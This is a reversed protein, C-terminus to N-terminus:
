LPSTKPLTWSHCHLVDSCHCCAWASILYPLETLNGATDEAVANIQNWEMNLENVEVSAQYPASTDTGLEILQSNVADWREFTVSSIGANDSVAVELAITGKTAPYYERDGDRIIGDPKVWSVTPPETDAASESEITFLQTVALECGEHNESFVLEYDGGPLEPLTFNGEWEGSDPVTLPSLTFQTPGTATFTVTGGPLWGAGQATVTDGTSVSSPSITATPEPCSSEGEQVHFPADAVWSEEFADAIVKQVGIDKAEPPVTFTTIFTGDDSVTAEGVNYWITNETYSGDAELNIALSLYVTEGPYWGSGQVTVEEGPAAEAPDVTITRQDESLATVMFPLHVDVGGMGPEADRIFVDYEGETADAPVTFSVQINGNDDATTQALTIDWRVDITDGPPWGSGTVTVETGPPGETPDLTATPEAEPPPTEEQGTVTFSTGLGGSIGCFSDYVRVEVTYDGATSPTTAEWTWTSIGPPIDVPQTDSYFSTTIDLQTGNSGLMYGGYANNVEAVFRITEGPAFTTQETGGADQTLVDQVTLQPECQATTLAPFVLLVTCLPLLLMLFGVIVAITWQRNNSLFSVM